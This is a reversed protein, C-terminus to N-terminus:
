LQWQSPALAITIKVSGDPDIEHFYNNVRTDYLQITRYLIGAKYLRITYQHVGLSMYSKFINGVADMSAIDTIITVVVNCHSKLSASHIVGSSISPISVRETAVEIKVNSIEGEDFNVSGDITMSYGIVGSPYLLDNPSSADNFIEKRMKDLERELDGMDKSPLTQNLSKHESGPETTPFLSPLKLKEPKRKKEAM